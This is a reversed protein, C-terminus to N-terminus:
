KTGKIVEFSNHSFSSMHYSPKCRTVSTVPSVIEVRHGLVSASGMFALLFRIALALAGGGWVVARGMELM